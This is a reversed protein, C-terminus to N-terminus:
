ISQISVQLPMSNQGTRKGKRVCIERIKSEKLGMKWEIIRSTDALPALLEQTHCSNARKWAHPPMVIPSHAQEWDATDAHALAVAFTISCRGLGAGRQVLHPATRPFGDLVFCSVGNKCAKNYELQDRVMGVMIDDSILGGDDM